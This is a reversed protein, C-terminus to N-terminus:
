QTVEAPAFAAFIRGAKTLTEDYEAAADSLATIGGGAQFQARGGRFTVTRIAINLDSRGDFGLYGISGCFMGRARGELAAIIEMARLKPAGTISGGPFCAALVDVVDRGAQMQGTVVSVLHHVSAFSELGCLVPVEVSFPRCIRSLDNRLLDVIMINEARDKASAQLAVALAADEGADAARRATGKIPRAEIHDGEVCLFREPSSSAIVTDGDALYAAFPAPNLARLRQYFVWADFGPPLDATFCQALNAQFIDGELIFDVVRRVKAEYEVRNEVAWDARAIGVSPRLDPRDPASQLRAMLSDARAQARAARRDPDPEPWGSSFLWLRNDRHDWALVVDYFHLKAQPLHMDDQAPLPQRDVVRGFEYSLYGAAGGRFPPLPDAMEDADPMPVAYRALLARLAALPEAPIPEPGTWAAHGDVVSFSGFPDAMVFSYRGHHAHAQASDLWCLAPLDALKAAVVAPEWAPLAVTLMTDREGRAM